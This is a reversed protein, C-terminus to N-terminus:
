TFHAQCRSSLIFTSHSLSPILAFINKSTVIQSRVFVDQTSRIFMMLNSVALLCTFFFTLSLISLINRKCFRVIQGHHMQFIMQVSPSLSCLCSHSKLFYICCLISKVGAYVTGSALCTKWNPTSYKLSDRGFEFQVQFSSRFIQM